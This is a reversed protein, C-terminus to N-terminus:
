KIMDYTVYVNCEFLVQLRKKEKKLSEICTSTVPYM